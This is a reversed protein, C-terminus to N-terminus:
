LFGGRQGKAGAGKRKGGRRASTAAAAAGGAGPRLRTAAAAGTGGRVASTGATHKSQRRVKRAVAPSDRLGGHALAALAASSSTREVAAPAAGPAVGGVGELQGQRISARGAAGARSHSRDFRLRQAEDAASLRRAAAAVTRSSAGTAAIPVRLPATRRADWASATKRFM